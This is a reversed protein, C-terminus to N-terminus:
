GPDPGADEVDGDQGGDTPEAMVPECYDHGPTPNPRLVATGPPCEDACDDYGNGTHVQPAPCPPPAMLNGSTTGGGCASITITAVGLSASLLPRARRHLAMRGAYV